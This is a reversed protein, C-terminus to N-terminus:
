AQHSSDLRGDRPPSRQGENAGRAPELVTRLLRQAVTDAGGAGALGVRPLLRAASSSPGTLTGASRELETGRAVEIWRGSVPRSVLAM